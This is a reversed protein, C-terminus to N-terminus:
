ARGDEKRALMYLLTSLRNLYKILRDDQLEGQHALVVVHREARRVVARAVDLAAGGPTDGPLVFEGTLEIEAALRNIEDELAKVATEPLRERLKALDPCAVEAMVLMLERQLGKLLPKTEAVSAQARALGIFSTAEDIDGLAEIRRSEKAVREGGILGTFGEDGSRSYWM